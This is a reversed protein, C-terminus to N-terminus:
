FCEHGNGVTRHHPIRQVPTMSHSDITLFGIEIQYVRSIRGSMVSMVGGSDWGANSAARAVFGENVLRGRFGSIRAGASSSCVVPVPSSRRSSSTCFLMVESKM